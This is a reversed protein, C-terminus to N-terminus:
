FAEALYGRWLSVQQLLLIERAPVSDRSAVQTVFCELSSMIRMEANFYFAVFNFLVPIISASRHSQMCFLTSSYLAEPIAISTRMRAVSRWATSLCCQSLSVSSTFLRVMQKKFICNLLLNLLAMRRSAAYNGFVGNTLVMVTLCIRRLIIM